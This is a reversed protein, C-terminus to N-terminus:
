YIKALISKVDDLSHIKNLQSRVKKADPIGRFYWGFHKRFEVMGQEGKLKKVLKAHELINRKIFSINTKLNCNDTKLEQFIWPHGLTGQGIMMGDLGHKMSGAEYNMDISGNGIVPIKLQKKVKYINTWDAKGSFGQKYTRGHIALADIGACELIRAFKLIDKPNSWGLRTKVSIPINKVRKKIAKIIKVANKQDKMLASGGGTKVVDRVPCGMNVDIGSPISEIELKWNRIELSNKIKLNNSKNKNTIFKLNYNQSILKSIQTLERDWQGSAIYEAAFAMHEPNSGFIQVVYPREKKSFQILKLTKYLQEERKTMGFKNRSRQSEERLKGQTQRIPESHCLQNHWIAESSIMESYLVNVGYCKCMLRFPQDTIGAMPALVLFPKNLKLWFNKM